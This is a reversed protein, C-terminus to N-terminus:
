ATVAFARFATLAAAAIISAICTLALQCSTVELHIMGLTHRPRADRCSCLAIFVPPSCWCQGAAGAVGERRTGVSPILAARGAGVFVGGEGSHLAGERVGVAESDELGGPGLGRRVAPAPRWRQEGGGTRVGTARRRRGRRGAAAAAPPAPAAPPACTRRPQRARSRPCAPRAAARPHPRQRGRAGGRRTPRRAAKAVSTM